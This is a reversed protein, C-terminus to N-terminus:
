LISARDRTYRAEVLDEVVDLALSEIRFAFSMRATRPFKATAPMLWEVFAMWKAFVLLEDGKESDNAM